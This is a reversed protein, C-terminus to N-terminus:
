FSNFFDLENETLEKLPLELGDAYDFGLMKYNSRGAIFDKIDSVNLEKGVIFGGPCQVGNLEDYPMACFVAGSKGKVLVRTDRM